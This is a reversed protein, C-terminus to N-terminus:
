NGLARQYVDVTKDAADPWAHNTGALEASRNGMRELEARDCSLLRDLGNALAEPDDPPVVLGNGEHEVTEPFAGVATVLVPKAFAYALQLAGSQAINRYPFAMIDASSLYLGMDAAEVYEPKLYVRDSLGLRDIQRVYNAPDVGIPKGVIALLTDPHAGCVRAFADILEPIGKYDRIAGFALIVRLEEPIGIQERANSLSGQSFLSYDGHPIVTVKKTDPKFDKSLDRLPGDGHVIIQDAISYILDYGVLMGPASRESEDHPVINHATFVVPYGMLQIAAYLAWDRRASFTSQIHVVDPHYARIGDIVTRCKQLYPAYADFVAELEFARDFADLEYPSGSLLKTDVGKDALANCLCFTYHCIGGWGGTEIMLAKM